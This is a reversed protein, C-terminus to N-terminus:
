SEPGWVERLRADRGCSTRYFRYRIPNKQYYDQHYDEAPYFARAPLIETAIPKKLRGSAALAAKSREAAEKQAEDVPFIASRYHPGRDCFQGGGDEPDINRWFVELLREYGVKRPDFVVQVAELHNTRGASVEKYTPNVRMGGTYGSTTSVVGELKDYPPEMCWFCGGAFIAVAMGAPVAAAKPPDAAQGSASLLALVAAIALIGKM